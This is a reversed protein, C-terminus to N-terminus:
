SYMYMYGSEGLSGGLWAAVLYQVSEGTSYLLDKNAMWKLYLLTPMAM